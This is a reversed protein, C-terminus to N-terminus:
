SCSDGAERIGFRVQAVLDADPTVEKGEAEELGWLGRWV